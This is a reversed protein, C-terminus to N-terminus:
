AAQDYVVTFEDGSDSTLATFVELKSSGNFRWEGESSPEASADYSEGFLAGNYFLLWRPTLENNPGPAPAAAFASNATWLDSTETMNAGLVAERAGKFSLHEQDISADTYHESDLANDAIKDGTVADAGLATTDVAGAAFHASDISGDVYQDSDVSNASMHELDIGGAALHQSDILDNAIQAATDIAGDAIKASTVADAPTLPPAGSSGPPKPMQFGNM